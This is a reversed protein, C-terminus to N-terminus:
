SNLGRRKRYAKLSATISKSEQPSLNNESDSAGDVINHERLIDLGGRLRGSLTQMIESVWDPCSKLVKRIDSKKIMLVSTTEMAIASASRVDDSFMSLEGIFSKEGVVSIPIFKSELEKVIRIKGRVVIYLYASSEGEVFLVQDKKLKIADDLNGGNEHLLDM